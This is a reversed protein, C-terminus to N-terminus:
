PGVFGNVINITLSFSSTSSTMIIFSFVFGHISGRALDIALSSITDHDIIM